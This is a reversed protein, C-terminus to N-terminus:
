VGACEVCAAHVRPMCVRCACSDGGSPVTIIHHIGHEIVKESQSIFATYGDKEMTALRFVPSNFVYPEDKPGLILPKSGSWARCVEGQGLCLRYL